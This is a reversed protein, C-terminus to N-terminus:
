ITKMIIPTTSVPYLVQEFLPSIIYKAQAYRHTDIQSSNRVVQSNDMATFLKIVLSHNVTSVLGWGKRLCDVAKVCTKFM